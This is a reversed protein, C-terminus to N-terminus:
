HSNNNNNKKKEEKLNKKRNLIADIWTALLSNISLSCVNALWITESLKSNEMTSRYETPRSCGKPENKEEMKREYIERVDDNREM